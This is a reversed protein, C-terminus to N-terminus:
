SVRRQLEADLQSITKVGTWHSPVITFEYEIGNIIRKIVEGERGSYREEIVIGFPLADLIDPLSPFSKYRYNRQLHRIVKEYDYKEGTKLTERQIIEAYSSICKEVKEDSAGMPYFVELERLFDFIKM